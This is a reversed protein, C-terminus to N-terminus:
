LEEKLGKLAKEFDEVLFAIRSGKQFDLRYLKDLLEQCHLSLENVSEREAKLQAELRNNEAEVSAIYTSMECPWEGNTCKRESEM